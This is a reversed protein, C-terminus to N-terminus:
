EANEINATPREPILGYGLADGRSQQRALQVRRVGEGTSFRGRM